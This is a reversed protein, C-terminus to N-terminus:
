DFTFIIIIDEEFSADVSDTDEDIDEVLFKSNKRFM